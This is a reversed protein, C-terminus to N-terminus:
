FHGNGECFIKNFNKKASSKFLVKLKNSWHSILKLTVQRSKKNNKEAKKEQEQGQEMEDGDSDEDSAM